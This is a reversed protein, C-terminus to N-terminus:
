HHYQKQKEPLLPKVGLEDLVNVGRLLLVECRVTGAMDSVDDM